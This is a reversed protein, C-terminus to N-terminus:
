GKSTYIQNKLSFINERTLPVNSFAENLDLENSVMLKAGYYFSYLLPSNIYYLNIM